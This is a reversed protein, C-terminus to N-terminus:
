DDEIEPGLYAPRTISKVAPTLSSLDGALQKLRELRILALGTAGGNDDLCSRIEGIELDGRMLPTGPEQAAALEIQYLRKKVKARHKTRATLEQGVYCGKSFSVGHLEEFNAELLFNKEPQIDRSGDPIGLALRHRDYAGPASLPLALNDSKPIFGRWGLGDHRPDPYFIGKADEFAVADGGFIAVCDYRDAADEIQVDARLKYMTLRRILDASRSREVDMLIGDDTEVLIFDHLFKGQATLLAAYLPARPTLLAMDNSILNQLFDRVDDGTLILASRNDLLTWCTETM